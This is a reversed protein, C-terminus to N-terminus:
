PIVYVYFTEKKSALSLNRGAGKQIPVDYGLKKLEDSIAQAVSENEDVYYFLASEKQNDENRRHYTITYYQQKLAFIVDDHDSQKLRTMVTLVYKLNKTNAQSGGNICCSDLETQLENIVLASAEAQAVKDNKEIELQAFLTDQAIKAKELQEYNNQLAIDKKINESFFYASAGIGIIMFLTSIIAIIKYVM